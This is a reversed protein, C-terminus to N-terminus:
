RCQQLHSKDLYGAASGHGPSPAPSPSPACSRGGCPLGALWYPISPRSWILLLPLIFVWIGILAEIPPTVLTGQGVLVAWTRRTVKKGWGSPSSGDRCPFMELAAPSRLRAGGASSWSPPSVTCLPITVWLLPVPFCVKEQVQALNQPGTGDPYGEAPAPSHESGGGSVHVPSGTTGRVGHHCWGRPFTGTGLAQGHLALHAPTVAAGGLHGPGSCRAPGTGTGEWGTTPVCATM